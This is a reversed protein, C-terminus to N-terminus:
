FSPSITVHMHDLMVSQVRRISHRRYCPVRFSMSVNKNDCNPFPQFAVASPGFTRPTIFFCPMPLLLPKYRACVCACVFACVHMVVRVCV